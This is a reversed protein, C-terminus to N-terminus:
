WGTALNWCRPPRKVWEDAEARPGVAAIRNGEVAVFGDFPAAGTAPFVNKSLLVLCKQREKM